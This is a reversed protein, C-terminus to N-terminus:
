AVERAASVSPEQKSSLGSRATEGCAIVAHGAALINRAANLDADAAHGCRVCRFEARSVRNERRASGCSACTRSTNRPDIAVVAGGRGQQKYELQRRFEAWGQDLISANLCARARVGRGPAEVTGRASRCMSGISLDELVVVAHSNSIATSTKHLFDRRIRALRLHLRQIRGQQKRWNSSLKVKRALRRQERALRGQHVRFSNVPAFTDGTSLTAFRVVGVDVGVMTKAPHVPTEVEQETHISVFWHPGERAITLQTPEGRVSRSKRYRVWGLRPLKVRGNGDDVSFQKADPYRFADRHRGKKKFRPLAARGEFFNRYARDLDLLAQQLPHVPADALFGTEAGHRWSTLARCLAAYGLRKERRALRETQLALARNYVFRCCGAIRSLSRSISPTPELRFRFARALQM